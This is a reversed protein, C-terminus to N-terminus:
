NWPEAQYNENHMRAARECLGMIQNNLPQWEDWGPFNQYYCARAVMRWSYCDQVRLKRVYEAQQRTMRRVNKQCIRLTRSAAKGFAMVQKPGKLPIFGGPLQASADTVGKAGAPIGKMVQEVMERCSIFKVLGTEQLPRLMAIEDADIQKGLRLMRDDTVFYHIEPNM